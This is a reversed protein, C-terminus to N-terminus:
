LDNQSSEKFNEKYIKFLSDNKAIVPERLKFRGKLVIIAYVYSYNAYKAVALV